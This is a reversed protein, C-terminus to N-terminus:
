KALPHLIESLYDPRTKDREIHPFRLGGHYDVLYDHSERGNMATVQMPSTSARSDRIADHWDEPSFARGNIATVRM